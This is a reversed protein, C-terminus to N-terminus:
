HHSWTSVYKLRTPPRQEPKQLQQKTVTVGVPPPPSTTKPVISASQSRSRQRSAHHGTPKPCEMTASKPRSASVRAHQPLHRYIEDMSYGQRSALRSLQKAVHVIPDENDVQSHRQDCPSRLQNGNVVQSQEQQWVGLNQTPQEINSTTDNAPGSYSIVGRAALGLM